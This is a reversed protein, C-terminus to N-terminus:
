YHVRLNPLFPEAGPSVAAVVQRDPIQSCTVRPPEKGSFGTKMGSLGSLLSCPSAVPHGWLVSNGAQLGLEPRILRQTVAPRDAQALAVSPSSAPAEPVREPSVQRCGCHVASRRPGRPSCPAAGGLVQSLSSPLGLPGSETEETGEQTAAAPSLRLNGPVTLALSVHRSPGTGAEPSVRLLGRHLATM